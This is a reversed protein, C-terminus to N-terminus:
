LAKKNKEPIANWKDWTLEFEVGCDDCKVKPGGIMEGNEAKGDWLGIQTIRECSCNKTKEEM